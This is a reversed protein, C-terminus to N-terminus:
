YGTLGIAKGKVRRPARAAPREPFSPLRSENEDYWALVERGSRLSTGALENFAKVFLPEIWTQTFSADLVKVDLVVGESIVAVDPNAINSAQAIEVDYDRVYSVQNLFAVYNRTSSGHSRLRKVLYSAARQDGLLALAEAANAALRLNESGLARVFPLATDDHGFSQAALVAERRVGADTDRAGSFLLARLASEDGLEALLRASAIRVQPEADYLTGLLADLLIREQTRALAVRAARQLPAAGTALSRVLGRAREIDAAAELATAPKRSIAEVEAPLMWRGRFLVLGKKRQADDSAVWADGVREFGLARRAAPHDVDLKLVRALLEQALDAAGAEEARLALRYLAVADAADVAAAEKRLDASPTVGLTVSAVAKPALEVAGEPTHVRYWGNPLKEVRGELVLGEATTLVDASAARLPLLGLLAASALLLVSGFRPNM